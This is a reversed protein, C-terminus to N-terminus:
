RPIAAGYEALNPATPATNRQYTPTGPQIGYSKAQAETMQWWAMMEEYIVTTTPNVELFLKLQRAFRDPSRHTQQKNNNTNQGLPWASNFHEGHERWYALTEPGALQALWPGITADQTRYTGVAHARIDAMYGYENMLGIWPAKGLRAGEVFGAFLQRYIEGYNPEYPIFLLQANPWAQLIRQALQKGRLFAQKERDARSRNDHRQPLKPDEFFEHKFLDQTYEMDVAFGAFGAQRGSAAAKAFNGFMWEWETDNFWSIPLGYGGEWGPRRQFNGFSAGKIFNRWVGKAALAQQIKALDAATYPRGHSAETRPKEIDNWFEAFIQHFIIGDFRSFVDPHDRAFEPLVDAMLLYENGARGDQISLDMIVGNLHLLSHGWRGNAGIYMVPALNDPADVLPVSEALEGDMWAQVRRARADWSGQFRHTGPGNHYLRKEAKALAEGNKGKVHMLWFYNGWEAARLGDEGDTRAVSWFEGGAFPSDKYYDVTVTGRQPLVYGTAPHTLTEPAREASKGNTPIYSSEAQDVDVHTHELQVADILVTLGAAVRLGFSEEKGSCSMRATARAWGARPAPVFAADLVDGNHVLQVGGATPDAGAAGSLYLSLSTMGQSAIPTARFVATAPGRSANTIRLGNKGHLRAAPDPTLTLGAGTWGTAGNEFDSNPCFNIRPGEIVIGTQGDITRYRPADPAVDVIFGQDDFTTATSPRKFTCTTGQESRLTRDFSLHLLTRRGHAAHAPVALVLLLPLVLYRM